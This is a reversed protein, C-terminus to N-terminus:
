TKAITFAAIFTHTCTDKYYFLKYEKPWVDVLPIASKFAILAELDKLFQWVTRWLPQLM